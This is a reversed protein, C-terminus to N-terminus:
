TGCSPWCSTLCRTFPVGRWCVSSCTEDYAKCISRRCDSCQDDPSLHDIDELVIGTCSCNQPPYGGDYCSGNFCAKAPSPTFMLTVLALSCVYLFYQLRARSSLYLM